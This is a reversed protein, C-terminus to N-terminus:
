AVRQSGTEGCTLCSRRINEINSRVSEEFGIWRPSLPTASHAAVEAPFASAPTMVVKSPSPAPDPFKGAIRRPTVDAPVGGGSSSVGGAIEDPKPTIDRSSGKRHQVPDEEWEAKYKELLSKYADHYRTDYSQWDAESRLKSEEFAPLSNLDVQSVRTEFDNDGSGYLREPPLLRKGEATAIVVYRIEGTAHALVIDDITGLKEHDRGYVTSGRVDDVDPSFRYGGLTSYHAM